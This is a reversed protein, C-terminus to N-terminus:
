QAPPWTTAMREDEVNTNKRMAALEAPTPTAPKPPAFSHIGAVFLPTVLVHTRPYNICGSACVLLCTAILIRLKM